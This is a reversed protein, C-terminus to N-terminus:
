VLGVPLHFALDFCEDPDIFQNRYYRVFAPTTAARLGSQPLWDTMIKDIWPLLEGYHGKLLCRAHLGGPILLGNVPGRRMVPRDIGLCAVYHCQTLPIWTPNSHHLGIQGNETRQEAIRWAELKSWANRIGRDYGRHRVYAVAIPEIQVLEIEPLPLSQIREYAAAIERDSQWARSHTTADGRRWRGPSTGFVARFAKSFSSLSHFGCKQAIELIPTDRDFTLQNAAHEIRTRRVFSHVSEGVVERFVRHFHQESWAAVRALRAAGLDVSIDRHIAFLVDNIRSIRDKEM